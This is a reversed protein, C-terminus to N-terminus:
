DACPSRGPTPASGVVGVPMAWPACTFPGIRRILERAQEAPTAVAPAALADLWAAAVIGDWRSQLGHSRGFIEAAVVRGGIGIIVGRQGELLPMTPAPRYALHDIMSASRTRRFRQEFRDIRRWVDGQDAAGTHDREAAYVSYAARRRNAQHAREGNWRGQEVCRAALTSTEGAPLLASAAVMRSQWGGELLDGELLVAPRSSGNTVRLEDVSPQGHLEGVSLQTGSWHLGRVSPAEVWLPFTTLAGVTTGAGVHLRPLTTNITTM